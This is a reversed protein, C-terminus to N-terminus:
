PWTETTHVVETSARINITHPCLVMALPNDSGPSAPDIAVGGRHGWPQDGKPAGFGGSTIGLPEFLESAMVTEWPAGMIHEIIAGLLVYNSNAYAFTASPGAPPVSLMAQALARRQVALPRPDDRAVMLWSMGM